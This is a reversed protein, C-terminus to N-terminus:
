KRECHFSQLTQCVNLPSTSDFLHLLQLDTDEPLNPHYLSSM